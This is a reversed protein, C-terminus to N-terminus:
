TFFRWELSSDGEKFQSTNVQNDRLRVGQARDRRRNELRM